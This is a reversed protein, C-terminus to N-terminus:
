FLKFTLQGTDKRRHRPQRLRRGHKQHLIVEDKLRLQSVPQLYYYYYSCCHKHHQWRLLSNGSHSNARNMQGSCCSRWNGASMKCRVSWDSGRIQRYVAVLVVSVMAM